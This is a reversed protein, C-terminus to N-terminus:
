YRDHMKRNRAVRAKTAESKFLYHYGNYAFLELLDTQQLQLLEKAIIQRKNRM